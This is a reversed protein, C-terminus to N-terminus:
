CYFDNDDDKPNDHNHRIAYVIGFILAIFIALNVM